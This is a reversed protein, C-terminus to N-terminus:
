NKRKNKRTKKSHKRYKGGRRTIAPLVTKREFGQLPKLATQSATIRRVDELEQERNMPMNEVSTMRSDRIGSLRGRLGPGRRVVVSERQPSNPPVPPVFNPDQSMLFGREAERPSINITKGERTFVREPGPAFNFVTRPPTLDNAPVIKGNKLILDGQYIQGNSYTYQSALDGEGKRGEETWSSLVLGNKMHVSSVVDENGYLIIFYGNEKDNKWDGEKIFRPLGTKEDKEFSTLMGTGSMIPRYNWLYYKGIYMGMGPIKIPDEAWFSSGYVDNTTPYYQSHAALIDNKAQQLYQDYHIGGGSHKRSKRVKRQTKKRFSNKRSRAM